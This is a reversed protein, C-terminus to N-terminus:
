YRFIQLPILNNIKKCVYWMGIKNKGNEEFGKLVAEPVGNNQQILVFFIRTELAINPIDKIYGNTDLM